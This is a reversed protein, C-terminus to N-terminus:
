PRKPPPQRWHWRHPRDNPPAGMMAPAWCALLLLGIVAVILLGLLGGGVKRTVWFLKREAM